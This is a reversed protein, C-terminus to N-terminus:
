YIGRGKDDAWEIIIQKSNGGNNEKKYTGM